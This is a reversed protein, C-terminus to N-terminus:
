KSKSRDLTGRWSAQERSPEAKLWVTQALRRREERQLKREERERDQRKWEEHQEKSRREIADRRAAEGSNGCNNGSM